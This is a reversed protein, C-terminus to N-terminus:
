IFAVYLKRNNAVKKERLKWKLRTLVLTLDSSMDVGSNRAEAKNITSKFHRPLLSFDIQNQVLGDQSYM